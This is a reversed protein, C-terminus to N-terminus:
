PGGFPQDMKTKWVPSAAGWPDYYCDARKHGLIGAQQEDRDMVCMFYIRRRM